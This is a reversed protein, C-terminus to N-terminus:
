KSRRDTLYEITARLERYSDSLAWFTRKPDLAVLAAILKAKQYQAKQAVTATTMTMCVAYTTVRM